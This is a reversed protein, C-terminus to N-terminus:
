HNQVDKRPKNAMKIDKKMFRRTMDKAWKRM